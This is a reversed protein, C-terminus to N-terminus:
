LHHLSSAPSVFNSVILVSSGLKFSVTRDFWGGLSQEPDFWCTVYLEHAFWSLAAMVM